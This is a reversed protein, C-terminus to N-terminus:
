HMFFCTHDRYEWVPCLRRRVSSRIMCIYDVEPQVSKDYLLGIQIIAETHQDKDFAKAFDM